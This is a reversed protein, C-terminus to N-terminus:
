NGAGEPPSGVPGIEKLVQQMAEMERVFAHSCVTCIATVRLRRTDWGREKMRSYVRDIRAALRGYAGQYPCDTGCSAIIIGDFGKEFCRLYFDEPFIVPALTRIVYCNPSYELHMQGVTDAGPYSCLETSIVLVKGGDESPKQDSMIKGKAHFSGVRTPGM